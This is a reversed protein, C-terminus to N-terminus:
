DPVLVTVYQSLFEFSILLTSTSDSSSSLLFDGFPSFAASYIPGSHGRYLTYSRKGSNTGPVSRASEKEEVLIAVHFLVFSDPYFLLFM